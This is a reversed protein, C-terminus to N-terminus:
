HKCGAKCSYCSCDMDLVHMAVTLLSSHLSITSVIKLGSEGKQEAVAVSHVDPLEGLEEPARM